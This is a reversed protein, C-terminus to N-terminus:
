ANLKTAEPEEGSTSQGNECADLVYRQFVHVREELTGIVGRHESARLGRQQQAFIPLDEHLIKRVTNRVVAALLAALLRAAPGHRSGRLSYLYVRQLSTGPGTPLFVEALRFTDMGIFVFNPHVLHHVYEPSPTEGLRRVLWNKISEVWKEYNRTHLSSFQSDLVHRITENPAATKLTKPHLCPVHYFEVTNEVPIKWDAEIPAEWHWAPAFPPAFSAAVREYYDGLYDRLSPGEDSMAVFLLEGCCELRFKRLRANERDWPRFCRADPIRGTRGEKNFQWGHYQCRFSPDHGFPRGSILCHRHPCINEFAHYEGDINRIMLPTEFLELTRYDGHRPLERTTGVLQWTAPFLRELEVRYQEESGYHRPRLLHELQHDHVYPMPTDHL